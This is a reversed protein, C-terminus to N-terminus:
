SSSTRLDALVAEVDVTAAQNYPLKGLVTAMTCTNSVASFTLGAGIFGALWKAGPVVTSAAVGALALSGATLRVQREMAWKEATGRAIDGGMKEWSALGGELSQLSQKGAGQLKEFAQESRAGTQCVLVLNADAAALEALHLDILNLPVNHSGPIHATQFEAGTRVDVIRVPPDTQLLEQLQVATTRTAAAISNTPFATTM